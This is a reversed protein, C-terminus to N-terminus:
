ASFNNVAVNIEANIITGSKEIKTGVEIETGDAFHAFQIPKEAQVKKESRSFRAWFYKRSIQAM